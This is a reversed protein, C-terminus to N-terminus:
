PNFNDAYDLNIGRCRMDPVHKATPLGVLTPVTDSCKCGNASLVVFHLNVHFITLVNPDDDYACAYHARGHGIM